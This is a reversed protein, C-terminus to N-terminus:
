WTHRIWPGMIGWSHFQGLVSSYVKSFASHSNQQQLQTIHIELMFKTSSLNLNSM